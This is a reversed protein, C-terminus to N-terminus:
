GVALGTMGVQCPGIPGIVESLDFGSYSMAQTGSASVQLPTILSVGTSSAWALQLGGGIEPFEESRIVSQLVHQPARWWLTGRVERTRVEAIRSAIEIKHSGLQVIAAADSTDARSVQTEFGREQGQGFDPSLRYIQDENFRRCYGFVLVETPVTQPALVGIQRSLERHLRAVLEALDRLSPSASEDPGILSTTLPVLTAYLSLGLIANGAVALGMSHNFYVTDFFGTDGPRRCVVPVSFLKVISDSLVSGNVTVRSDSAAWVFPPNTEKNVWCVVATM